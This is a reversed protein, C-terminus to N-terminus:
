RTDGEPPAVRPTLTWSEGRAAFAQFREQLARHHRVGRAFLFAFILIVVLAIVGSTAMAWYMLEPPLRDAFLRSGARLV